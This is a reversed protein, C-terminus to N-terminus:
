GAFGAPLSAISTNAVTMDTDYSVLSLMSPPLSRDIVDAQRNGRGGQSQPAPLSPVRAVESGAMVALAPMVALSRLTLLPGDPGTPASSLPVVDLSTDMAESVSSRNSVTNNNNSSPPIAPLPAPPPMCSYLSDPHSEIDDAVSMSEILVEGTFGCEFM